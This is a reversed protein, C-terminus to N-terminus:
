HLSKSILLSMKDLFNIETIEGTLFKRLNGEVKTEKDMRKQKTKDLDQGGAQQLRMGRFTQEERKIAEM